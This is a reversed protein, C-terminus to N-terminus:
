GSATFSGTLKRSKGERFWAGTQETDIGDIANICETILNLADPLFSILSGELNPLITGSLEGM